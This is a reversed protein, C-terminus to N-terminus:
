AGAKLIDRAQEQTLKRVEAPQMGTARLAARAAAREAKRRAIRAAHSPPRHAAETETHQMEAAKRNRDKATQFM